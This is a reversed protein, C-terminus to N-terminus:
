DKVARYAISKVISTEFMNTRIIKFIQGPRMGYYRCMIDNTRIIPLQDINIGGDLLFKTQEDETLPIHEPVFKHAIRDFALEDELFVQINKSVLSELQKRATSHVPKPTIIVANNIKDKDLITAVERVTEVGMQTNTVDAYYVLLKEGEKIYTITLVERLTKNENEAFPIYANRFEEPSIKLLGKEQKYLPYGRRVVMKLQEQKVKFLKDVAEIDISM